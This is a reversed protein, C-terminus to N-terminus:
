FINAIFEAVEDQSLYEKELLLEALLKIKGINAIVVTKAEEYNERCIGEAEQVAKTDLNQNFDAEGSIKSLLSGNMSFRTVMLHSIKSAVELDNSAGSSIDGLIIEEALRGGYLVQMRKQLASKTMYISDAEDFVNYGGAQGRPVISIGFNKVNPRVVASVIAHGAEHIATIKKEEPTIASDPKKLGVMVRAIAEEMDDITICNRGNNVANIASENLINELDAGSFGTTRKAVDQLSINSSLRKNRAHLKLIKERAIVDPKPVFVHRDFRGPRTIASDLVEIHNTAAIVIVKENTAFGDMEALLQNLTQETYSRGSYRNQAVADIEDIFIICPAVKKAETFLKRIRSAGVGVFKEEFTSGSAQFFPVGAEGAIAKALLTKGTGPDGSLLIGRPIKAGMRTYKEPNRLFTVVEELQAKEEDIGAVDSFRKTSTVPKVTYDNGANMTKGLSRILFIYFCVILLTPLLSIFGNSSTKVEFKIQKGNELETTILNSVEELSPALVTQQTEDKFTVVLQATEKYGTVETVEGAKIATVLEDYTFVETERLTSALRSMFSLLVISLLLLSIIARFRNNSNNSKM